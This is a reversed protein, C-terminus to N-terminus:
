QLIMINAEPIYCETELVGKLPHFDTTAVLQSERDLVIKTSEDAFQFYEINSERCSGGTIFYVGLKDAALLKSNEILQASVQKLSNDEGHIVWLGKEDIYQFLIDGNQEVASAISGFTLQKEEVNNEEMRWVNRNDRTTKAFYLIQKEPFYAIPEVKDQSNFILAIKENTFDYRYVSGGSSFILQDSNKTWIIAGVKKSLAQSTILREQGNEILWIQIQNNRVSAYATKKGDPSFSSAYNLNSNDTLQIKESQPNILIINASRQEETYFIRNGDASFRPRLFAKDKAEAFPIEQEEGNLYLTMLKRQNESFILLGSADPIWSIDASTLNLQWRSLPTQDENLFDIQINNKTLSAIATKKNNIASAIPNVIGDIDDLRNLTQHALSYRYRANGSHPGQKAVIELNTEDWWSVSFIRGQWQSLLQKELLRNQIVDLTFIHFSYLFNPREYFDSGLPLGENRKVEIAVLSKGSPSWALKFWSGNTSALSWDKGASNRIVINSETEGSTLDSFKERIYAVHQNDPHPVASREHGTENTYGIAATFGTKHHKIVNPTRNAFWYISASILILGALLLSNRLKQNKASASQDAEHSENKRDDSVIRLDESDMQRNEAVFDPAINLQYGRKSYHAIIERDGILDAFASRLANISKQVSGHTVIRGPWLQELLEETSVVRSQNVALYHLVEMAKPQLKISRENFSLTNHSPSIRLDGLNFGTDQDNNM